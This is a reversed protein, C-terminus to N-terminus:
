QSAKYSLLEAEGPQPNSAWGFCVHTIFMHECFHHLYEQSSPATETIINIKNFVFCFSNKLLRASVNVWEHTVFITHFKFRRREIVNFLEVRQQVTETYCGDLKFLLGWLGVIKM